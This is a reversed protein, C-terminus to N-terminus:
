FTNEKRHMCLLQDSSRQIYVCLHLSVALLRQRSEQPAGAAAKFERRLRSAVFARDSFQLSQTKRLLAKYLTLAADRM